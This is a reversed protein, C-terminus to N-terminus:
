GQSVLRNGFGGINGAVRDDRKGTPACVPADELTPQSGLAHRVNPHELQARVVRNDRANGSSGSDCKDGLGDEISDLVRLHRPVRQRSDKAMDDRRHYPTRGFLGGGNRSQPAHDLLQAAWSKSYTSTM